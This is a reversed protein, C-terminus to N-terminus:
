FPLDEAPEAAAPPVYDDGPPPIEPGGGAEAGDGKRGLFQVNLAVVETIYRKQGKDDDWSRTRLRGEVYVLQGKKLYEGMVEATRGFTVIRHWETRDQQKGDKDKYSDNTAVSFTAVALGGPTYKIEPDRGAHGILMVKNLGRSAM